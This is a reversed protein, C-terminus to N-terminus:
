DSVQLKRFGQELRDLECVVDRYYGAQLDPENLDDGCGFDCHLLKRVVKGYSSGMERSISNALRKATFFESFTDDAGNCFDGPQQLSKLTASYAIELLVIGLSFLISNPALNNPQHATWQNHGNANRVKVNMHPVALDIATSNKNHSRCGFFVVDESRWAVKLWPTGHYQLVATALAKALRLREYQPFACSRQPESLSSIYQQLSIAPRNSHGTVSPAPYVVHKCGEAAELVAMCIEPNCTQRDKYRRLYDCFDRRISPISLMNTSIQLSVVKAAPPPTPTRFRVSKKSKRKAPAEIDSCQRKLSGTLQEIPPVNEHCDSDGSKEFISDVVFWVPERQSIGALTLHTFAMKFKLEPISANRGPGHEVRLDFHALHETHKTCARGLANYVQGSTKRITQWLQVEKHIQRAPAALTFNLRTTQSALTRFDDNLTRLAALTEDLRSDSFCFRIKQALRRRRTKDSPTADQSPM